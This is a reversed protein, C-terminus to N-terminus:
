YYFADCHYQYGAASAIALCQQMTPFPGGRIDQPYGYGYVLVWGVAARAPTQSFAVSMLVTLLLVLKKM